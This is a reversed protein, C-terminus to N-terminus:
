PPRRLVALEHELVTRAALLDGDADDGAALDGRRGVQRDGAALRQCYSRLASAAADARRRENLDRAAHDRPEAHFLRAPDYTAKVRRPARASAGFLAGPDVARESFSLFSTPATVHAVSALVADVAGDVAAIAEPTPAVGVAFLLYDADFGSVAGGPM